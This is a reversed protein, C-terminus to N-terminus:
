YCQLTTIAVDDYKTGEYIDTILFKIKTFEGPLNFSQITSNNEIKYKGILNNNEDVVDLLEM